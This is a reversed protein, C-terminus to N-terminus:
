ASEVQRHDVGHGPHGQGREGVARRVAGVLADVLVPKPLHEVMGAALAREREEPLAHGTVGIVALGPALELIRRTTQYGDMDPMSVDMLVLDFGGPGAEALRALAEPGSPATVCRAGEQTLIDELVLLNVEMDDVALVRLGTLRPGGPPVHLAPAPPDCPTLPLTLTFRSGVNLTSEAVIRGGMLAALKASISLGLGSGGYKRSINADAQEFPEFLHAIREAEIGIGTDSVCVRLVGDSWSAALEVQGESTFKVANSSLNIVLQRLRLGDTSVWEPLNPALDVRLELGKSAALPAVLELGEGLTPALHCPRLELTLKGAELRALDLVGDVVQHLHRGAALIGRLAEGAPGDPQERAGIRALGLVANLPTRIEHSMTALFEGKIRALQEAAERGRRLDQEMAKRETIDRAFGLTGICDGAEDHIPAKYVECWGRGGDPLELPDELLQPRNESLAASDGRRYQEAVDAPWIERDGRGILARPEQGARDALVQNVQVYRGATDKLWVEMPLHDVMARLQRQSERLAERAHARETIDQAACLVGVIAGAGDRLANNHWGLLRQSGDACLVPNEFYAVPEVEGRMLSRYVAYVEATGHPQPLFDSFWNRGLVQDERYGLLALGCRNILTVRGEADLSLIMENVTDLYRQATAHAERLAQAAARQASNDVLNGLYGIHRGRRDFLPNVSLLVAVTSGDRRVMLCDSPTPGLRERALAGVRARRPPPAGDPWPALSQMAMALDEPPHLDLINLRGVAQGADWGLLGEAIPNFHTIIGDLNCAVVGVASHDLLARELAQAEDLEGEAFRRRQGERLVAVVLLAFLGLLVALVALKALYIWALRRPLAPEPFAIVRWDTRAVPIEAGFSELSERADPALFPGPSGATCREGTCWLGHSADRGSESASEPAAGSVLLVVLGSESPPTLAALVKLAPRRARLQWCRGQAHWAIRHEIFPTDGDLMLRAAAPVTGPADAGPCDAGEATLDRVVVTTGPALRELEARTHAAYEQPPRDGDAWLAGAAMGLTLAHGSETDGLALAVRKATVQADLGQGALMQRYLSHTQWALGALSILALGLTLAVLPRSEIGTGHGEGRTANM